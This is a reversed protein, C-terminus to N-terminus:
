RSISLYSFIFFLYFTTTMEGFIACRGLWNSFSYWSLRTKFQIGENVSLPPPTRIYIGAPLYFVLHRSHITATPPHCSSCRESLILRYPKLVDGVGRTAGVPVCWTYPPTPIATYKATHFYITYCSPPTAYQDHKLRKKWTTENWRTQKWRFTVLTGSPLTTEGRRSSAKTSVRRRARVSPCTQRFFFFLFLSFWRSFNQTKVM